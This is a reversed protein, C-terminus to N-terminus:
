RADAQSAPVENDLREQIVQRKALIANQFASIDDGAVTRTLNCLIMFVDAAEELVFPIRAELTKIDKASELYILQEILEGIEEHLKAVTPAVKVDRRGYKRKHWQAISEVFMQMELM